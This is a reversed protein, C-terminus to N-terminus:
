KSKQSTIKSLSDDVSKILTNYTEKQRDKTREFEIHDEETDELTRKLKKIVQKNEFSTDDLSDREMILVRKKEELESIIQYRSKTEM